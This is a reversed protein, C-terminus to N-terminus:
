ARRHELLFLFLLRCDQISDEEFPRPPNFEHRKVTRVPHGSLASQRAAAGSCESCGGAVERGRWGSVSSKPRRTGSNTDLVSDAPPTVTSGVRPDVCKCRDGLRVVDGCRILGSRRRRHAQVIRLEFKSDVGEACVVGNSAGGTAGRHRGAAAMASSSTSMSLTWKESTSSPGGGGCAANEDPEGETDLRLRCGCLICVGVLGIVVLIGCLMSGDAGADGGVGAGLGVGPCRMGSQLVAPSPSSALTLSMRTKNALMFSPSCCRSSASSSLRHLLWCSAKTCSNTLGLSFFSGNVVNGSSSHRRTLLAVLFLPWRTRSLPRSIEHSV